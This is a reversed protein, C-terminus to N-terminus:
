KLQEIAERVDTTPLNCVYNQCIYAAAKGDISKQPVTYPAFRSIEPIGEQEPRFVLVKRPAFVKQLAVLMEATDGTEPRGAVVVEYAPGIRFDLGILFQTYASPLHGIQGAFARELQEAKRELEPNATIRGLRLLNFYAVSNGSPVAGDYVEKTRVLMQEGTDSTFFFGGAPEDWFHRLMHDNLEIANKLFSIEFTTQYLEILGYVLFAYDDVHAQLAAEGSRYRHILSGDQKRMKNLIFNASRSAAEAYKPEALAAAAKAFSAIMLGNWDALIKDDKLPHVRAERVQFLKKRAEEIRLRLLQEELKRESGLVGWPKTRYIINDGTRHGIVQELFNGNREINFIEFFFSAEDGLIQELEEAKWVYFKGEVGESDADEASYFGGEPDTMDRLVYEYIERAIEAFEEKRTAQHAEIYAMSLLAQDYLMKEFHPVLWERDTSYRHFGFGVHDYIGGQRMAELTKEVMELARADGTRKWYRLLFLHQHPTPFKPADGFGGFVRDFRRALQEFGAKVASENLIEGSTDASAQQLAQTIEAASRSVDPQKLKWLEKIRPIMELLGPRGFRDHKPIYTGAFFPQKDPTLFMTLPWGGSGTLMQCVTMYINDIDPREERDVKVCVFADNMLAAVEQDEFSEHEMVHCWHCTSYGISLLVPKNERRATEFAEDGWPYWDVPNDSHQLLYPSKEQTLRNM